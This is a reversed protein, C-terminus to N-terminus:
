GNNKEKHEITSISVLVNGHSIETITEIGEEHQHIKFDYEGEELISSVSISSIRDPSIKEIRDM